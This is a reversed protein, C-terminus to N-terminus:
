KKRTKKFKYNSESMETQFIRSRKFGTVRIMAMRKVPYYAIIAALCVASFIDTSMIVNYEGRIVSATNFLVFAFISNFIVSRKGYCLLVNLVTVLLAYVLHPAHISGIPQPLVSLSLVWVSFSTFISLLVSKVPFSLRFLLYIGYISIIVYPLAYFFVGEAYLPPVIFSFALMSFFLLAKGKSLAFAYCISDTYGL